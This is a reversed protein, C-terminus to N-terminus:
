YLPHVNEIEVIRTTYSLGRAVQEAEARTHYYTGTDTFGASLGTDLMITFKCNAQPHQPHIRVRLAPM